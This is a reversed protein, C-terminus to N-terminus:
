VLAVVVLIRCMEAGGSAAPRADRLVSPYLPVCRSEGFWQAVANNVRFWVVKARVKSRRLLDPSGLCVGSCAGGARM